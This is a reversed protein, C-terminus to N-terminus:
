DIRRLYFIKVSVYYMVVHKLYVEKNNNQFNYKVENVHDATRVCACM